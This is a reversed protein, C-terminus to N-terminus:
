VRHLRLPLTAYGYAANSLLRTPVGAVIRRVRSALAELFIELEM